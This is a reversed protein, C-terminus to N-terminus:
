LKYSLAQREEANVAKIVDKYYAPVASVASLM